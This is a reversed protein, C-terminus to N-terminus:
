MQLSLIKFTFTFSVEGIVGKGDVNNVIAGNARIIWRRRYLQCSSFNVGNIVCGDPSLSMRISYPFMFEESVMADFEELKMAVSMEPAFVASARVKFLLPINNTFYIILPQRHFYCCMRTIMVFQGYLM